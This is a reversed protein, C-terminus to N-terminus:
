SQLEKCWLSFGWLTKRRSPQHGHGSSSLLRRVRPSEMASNWESGFVGPAHSLPGLLKIRAFGFGEATGDDFAFGATIGPFQIELTHALHVM